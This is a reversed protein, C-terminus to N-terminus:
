QPARGHEARAIQADLRLLERRHPSIRREAVSSFYLRVGVAVVAALLALPSMMLGLCVATASAALFVSENIARELRTLRPKALLAVADRQQRLSALQESSMGRHRALETELQRIRAHAAEIESRYSDGAV